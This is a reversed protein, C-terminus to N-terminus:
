SVIAVAVRSASLKTRFQDWVVSPLQYIRDYSCSTALKIWYHARSEPRARFAVRFSGAYSTASATRFLSYNSGHRCRSGDCGAFTWRQGVRYTRYRQPQVHILRSVFNQQLPRCTAPPDRSSCAILGGPLLATPRGSWPSSPCTKALLATLSATLYRPAHWLAQM